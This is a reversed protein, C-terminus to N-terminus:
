QGGSFEANLRCRFEVEGDSEREGEVSTVGDRDEWNGKILIVRVARNTPEAMQHMIVPYLSYNMLPVPAISSLLASQRTEWDSEDRVSWLDSIGESSNQGSDPFVGHKIHHQSPYVHVTTTHMPTSRECRLWFGRTQSVRNTFILHSRFFWLISCVAHREAATKNDKVQLDQPDM